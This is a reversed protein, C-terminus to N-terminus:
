IFVPPIFRAKFGSSLYLHHPPSGGILLSPSLLRANKQYQGNFPM